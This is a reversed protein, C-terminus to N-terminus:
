GDKAKYAFSKVAYRHFYQADSGRDLVRKSGDKFHYIVPGMTSAPSTPAMNVERAGPCPRGDFRVGDSFLDISVRNKCKPCRDVIRIKPHHRETRNLNVCSGCVASTPSTTHTSEDCRGLSRKAGHRFGCNGGGDAFTYYTGKEGIHAVADPKCSADTGGLNVSMNGPDVM